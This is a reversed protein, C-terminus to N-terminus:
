DVRLVRFAPYGYLPLGDAGLYLRDGDAVFRAVREDKQKPRSNLRWLHTNTENIFNSVQNIRTVNDNGLLYGLLNKDSINSIWDDPGVVNATLSYEDHTRYNHTIKDEGSPSYAIRTLTNPFERFGSKLFDQLQANGDLEFARTAIAWILPMDTPHPNGKQKETGYLGALKDQNMAPTMREFLRYNATKGRYAVEPIDWFGESPQTYIISPEVIEDAM